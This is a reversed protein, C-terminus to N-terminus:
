SALLVLVDVARVKHSGAPDKEHSVYRRTNKAWKVIERMGDDVSWAKEMTRSLPLAIDLDMEDHADGRCIYDRLFGGYVAMDTRTVIFNALMLYYYEVGDGVARIADPSASFLLAERESTSPRRVSPAAVAAGRLGVARVAETRRGTGPVAVATQLRRSVEDACSSRCVISLCGRDAPKLQTACPKV